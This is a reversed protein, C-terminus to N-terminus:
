GKITRKQRSSSGSRRWYSDNSVNKIQNDRCGWGNDFADYYINYFKKKFFLIYFIRWYWKNTMHREMHDYSKHFHHRMDKLEDRNELERLLSM